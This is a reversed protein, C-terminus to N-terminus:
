KISGLAPGTLKLFNVAFKIPWIALWASFDVVVVVVVIMASFGDLYQLGLM